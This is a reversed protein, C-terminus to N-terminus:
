LYFVVFRGNEVNLMLSAGRSIAYDVYGPIASDAHCESTHQPSEFDRDKDYWSLLTGNGFRRQAESNAIAMTERYDAPRPQPHLAVVKVNSLDAGDHLLCTATTGAQDQNSNM